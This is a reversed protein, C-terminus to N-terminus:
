PPGSAAAPEAPVPREFVKGVTRLVLVAPSVKEVEVEVTGPLGHQLPLRSGPRPRLTLEVRIRGDRPESGLG